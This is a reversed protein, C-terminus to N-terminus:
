ETKTDNDTAFLYEISENPFYLARIKYAECLKLRGRETLKRSVTSVNLKMDNAIKERTIKKKRLEGELNSYVIDGGTKEISFDHKYLVSM